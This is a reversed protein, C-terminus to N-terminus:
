PTTYYGAPPPQSHNETDVKIGGVNISEDHPPPRLWLQPLGGETGPNRGNNDGLDIPNALYPTGPFGVTYVNIWAGEKTVKRLNHIDNPLQDLAINIRDKKDNLVQAVQILDSLTKDLTGENRSILPALHDSLNKVGDILETLQERRASLADLAAAMGDLSTGLAVKRDDVAKSLQDSAAILRDIDAKRGALNTSLSSLGQLLRSIDGARGAMVQDFEQLVSNVAAVDTRQVSGRFATLVEDVDTAPKTKTEPIEAGSALQPGTGPDAIDVFKKGLLTRLRIAATVGQSLKVGQNIQLSMLVAHPQRDISAVKGVDIGAVRVPDGTGVDSADSFVAKITYSRHLIKMGGIVYAIAMLSLTIALGVYASRRINRETM